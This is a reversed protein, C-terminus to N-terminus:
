KVLPAPGATALLGINLTPELPQVTGLIVGSMDVAADSMAGGGRDADGDAWSLPPCGKAASRSAVVDVDGGGGAGGGVFLALAVDLVVGDGAGCCAGAEPGPFPPLLLLLALERGVFWVPVWATLLAGAAAAAGAVFAFLVVGGAAFVAGGAAV